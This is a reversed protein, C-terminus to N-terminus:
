AVEPSEMSRKRTSVSASREPFATFRPPASEAGQEALLRAGIADLEGTTIGPRVFKATEDLTRRVIRGIIRLKDLQDGSEISM